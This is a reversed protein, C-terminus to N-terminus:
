VSLPRGAPAVAPLGRCSGSDRSTDDPYDPRKKESQTGYILGRDKQQVTGGQFVPRGPGCDGQGGTM